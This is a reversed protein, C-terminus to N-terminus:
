GLKLGAALGLLLAAEAVQESAGLIDGTWGGVLRRATLGVTLAGGSALVLAVVASRFGCLFLPASGILIALTAERRRVGMPSPKLKAADPDAAYPLSVMVGVSAARAAGHTVLLAIAGHTPGFGALVAAKLTMVTWLALAGFSGIRSDKMIALRRERTQGGGLGDFTDALGDEHFGGTLLLGSGIALVAAPWASWVLSASLFVLGSVAGVVLGVVPYYPASRAIWDPEFDTLAPV